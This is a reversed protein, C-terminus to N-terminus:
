DLNSLSELAAASFALDSLIKTVPLLAELGPNDVIIKRPVIITDGPELNINRVFINRKNQEILGNAKIVYTKRRDAYDQYGGANEIASSVSMNKNYEFAIPNLVEGLVNIANPNIPIIINDGDSLLTKSSSGSGPSFDGAIRGLYQPEISESLARIINIDGINEGKQTSSLLAKNLDDKSKQISIRQRERVSERTFVIGDLFAENKFNGVMLYLDQLTADAQLTYTGPYDIAGSITVNILDNVPSRFSVTNYKQANFQMNRYDDKLVINELPSIYTASTEVDSMDLGLYNVFAEVSYSGFVPLSYSGQRHNIRLNYDDILNQTMDTVDFSRTIVNAFFIKSNSSLSVSQYTKKDKLSFLISSKVLNNEDFQEVVGLWPYVDIFNLDNILQDLTKYKQSDYFGPREVAGIVQINSKEQSVYDFVIVSTANKLDTSLDSFNKNVESALELDLFSVSINSQIATQKFGLAFNVIDEITEEELLEYIAPRKVAGGIQVFQKAAGILITDGAQITLDKSRDGNILLDYLDFSFVDGDNRILKIERLSGIESIGGSYALASSITSFPNVLYTGPSEVAGVIVIKKASLNKVSIDVKVGIFSQEVLNELKNRVVEITEGVVSVSGIEPFLITGDLKVGLDFVLDRSGSLIVTLQDRLSIRYDNPVPLDGVASISKPISSIFDYGFKKESATTSSNNGDDKKELSENLPAIDPLTLVTGSNSQIQAKAAEIQEPSLQSLLAEQAFANVSNAIM